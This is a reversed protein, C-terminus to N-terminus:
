RLSSVSWLLENCFLEMWSNDRRVLEGKKEEEVVVVCLLNKLSMLSTEAGDREPHVEGNSLADQQVARAGIM